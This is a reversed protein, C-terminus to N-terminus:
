DLETRAWKVLSLLSYQWDCSIYSHLDGKLSLIVKILFEDSSVSVIESRLAALSELYLETEQRM